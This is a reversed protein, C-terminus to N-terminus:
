YGPYCGCKQYQSPSSQQEQGSQSPTTWHEWQQNLWYSCQNKLRKQKGVKDNPAHMPWVNKAHLIYMMPWVNYRGTNITITILDRGQKSKRPRIWNWSVTTCNPAPIQVPTTIHRELCNECNCNWLTGDVATRQKKFSRWTDALMSM